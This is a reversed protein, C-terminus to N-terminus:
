VSQESSTSIKNSKINIFRYLIIYALGSVVMSLLAGGITSNRAMFFTIAGATWAIYGAINFGKFYMYIGKKNFLEKSIYSKNILFYDVIIVSFLPILLYGQFNLWGLVDGLLNVGVALGICIAGIIASMMKVSVNPFVSVASIASSYLILAATAITAFIIVIFAVTGFVPGQHLMEILPNPNGLSVASIQGITNMLFGVPISGILAAWFVIKRTKGFRTYDAVMPVWTLASILMVDFGMALTLNGKGSKHLLESFQHGGVAVYLAMVVLILVAPVLYQEMVKLASSGYVVLVVIIIGVIISFTHQNGWGFLEKSTENLMVGALQMHVSDWGALEIFTILAPLIAGTIGFASRSAVMTTVGAQQGIVGLLSFIVFGITLACITILICQYLTLGATLSGGVIFYSVPVQMGMFIAIMNWFSFDQKDKPIYDLSDRTYLNKESM